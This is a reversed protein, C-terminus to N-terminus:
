IYIIELKNIKSYCYKRSNHENDYVKVLFSIVCGEISCEVNCNHFPLDRNSNLEIIEELLYWEFDYNEKCADCVTRYLKIHTNSNSKLEKIIPTVVGDFCDASLNLQNLLNKIEQEQNKM